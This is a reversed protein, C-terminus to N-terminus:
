IFSPNHELQTELFDVLPFYKAKFVKAVMTDQDSMLCWSQKGLMALNFGHLQKFDIGGHEKKMSMKDWIRLDLHLNTSTQLCNPAQLDITDEKM